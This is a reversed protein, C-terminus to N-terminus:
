CEWLAQSFISHDCKGGSRVLPSYHKHIVPAKRTHIENLPQNLKKNNEREREMDRLLKSAITCHHVMGLITFHNLELPILAVVDTFEEQLNSQCLLFLQFDM